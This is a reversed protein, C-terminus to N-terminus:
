LIKLENIVDDNECVQILEENVSEELVISGLGKKLVRLDQILRDVLFWNETSVCMKEVNSGIRSFLDIDGNYKTYIKLMKSNLM